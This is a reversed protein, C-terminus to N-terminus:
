DPLRRRQAKRLGAKRLDARYHEVHKGSFDTDGYTTKMEDQIAADMERWNPHEKKLRTEIDTMAQKTAKDAVTVAPINGHEQEIRWFLEYKRWTTVRKNPFTQEFDPKGDGGWVAPIQSTTEDRNAPTETPTSEPYKKTSKSGSDGAPLAPMQYGLEAFTALRSRQPSINEPPIQAASVTESIAVPRLWEAMFNLLKELLTRLEPANAYDLGDSEIRLSSGGNPLRRATLWAFAMKGTATPCNVEVSCNPMTPSVGETQPTIICGQWEDTNYYTGIFRSVEGGFEYPTGKFHRDILVDLGRRLQDQIATRFWLNLDTPACKWFYWLDAVLNDFFQQAAAERCRCVVRMYATGPVGLEFRIIWPMSVSEGGSAPFFEGTMELFQGDAFPLQPFPLPQLTFYNGNERAFTCQRAAQTYQALWLALQYPTGNGHRSVDIDIVNVTTPGKPHAEIMPAFYAVSDFEAGVAHAVESFRAWLECEEPTRDQPKFATKDVLLNQSGFHVGKAPDYESKGITFRIIPIGKYAVTYRTRAGSADRTVTYEESLHNLVRDLILDYSESPLGPIIKM